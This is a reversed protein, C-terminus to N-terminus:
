LSLQNKTISVNIFQNIIKLFKLKTLNANINEASGIKKANQFSICKNCLALKTEFQLHM